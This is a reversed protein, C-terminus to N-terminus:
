VQILFYSTELTLYQQIEKLQMLSTMTSIVNKSFRDSEGPNSGYLLMESEYQLKRNHLLEESGETAVEKAVCKM